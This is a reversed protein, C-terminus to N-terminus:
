ANQRSYFFSVSQLFNEAQEVHPWHSAQRLTVLRSHPFLRAIDYRYPEALYDSHEGAIFLTAGTFPAVAESEPFSALLPMAQELYDLNVRWRYGDQDKSLNQLLFQRLTRDDLWKAMFSDAEQRAKLQALPIERLARFIRKFRYPYRAPAMEVVILTKVLLPYNLAFWMAVKGGMSHGIVHVESVGLRECFAAIDEAMSPYNMDASHPSAGHNRLDPLHIQFRDALRSAVSRWNGGHGFMGHLILLHPGQEGLSRHALELRQLLAERVSWVVILM